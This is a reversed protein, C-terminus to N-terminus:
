LAKAVGSIVSRRLWAALMEEELSFYEVAIGPSTDLLIAAM